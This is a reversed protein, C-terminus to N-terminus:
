RPKVVAPHGAAASKQAANQAEEQSAYNGVRVRVVDGVKETYANIGKAKLDSAISAAKIPDVYAGVQVVYGRPTPKSAAKPKNGNLIAQVRASEDAHQGGPASPKPKVPEPVKINEPKSEPKTEPKSEPKVEPKPEPKTDPKVEPKTERRPSAGEEEADGTTQPRPSEVRPKVTAPKPIEAPKVPMHTSANAPKSPVRPATPSVPAHHSAAPNAPPASPAAVPSISPSVPKVQTTAAPPPTVPVSPRPPTRVSEDPAEMPSPPQVGPAPSDTPVGSSEPKNVSSSAADRSPVLIQVDQPPVKPAQDMVWPLVIAAGLALTSAGVLRRRARKQLETSDSSDTM